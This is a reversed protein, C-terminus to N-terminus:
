QDAISAVYEQVRLNFRKLKLDYFTAGTVRGLADPDLFYMNGERSLIKDKLLRERIAIGVGGKTMRAHEIKDQFRALRGKSHSRFAMVLRRLARLEEDISQGVDGLVEAGFGAWPYANAGPWFVALEAGKRILPARNVNSRVLERAELAVVADENGGSLDSTQVVLEPCDFSLRAVSLSVPAILEVPGGSGITVDLETADIAVGSVQRGFQLEGAQSTRFMIRQPSKAGVATVLIEVDAEDTGEEAEITLRVIDGASTRARISDYLVVVHEPPIIPNSGWRDTARTLYFDILFPNPTHPGNGARSLAAGAAEVSQALLAHALIAAAFVAGSPSKGTGDLFPHQPLLGKAADDYARVHESKLGPPPSPPRTGLVIAAVRALQEEPLYLTSRVDDPITERLQMQLKGAERKLIQQAVNQLIQGEMAERVSENLAAPNSVTALVGAVAELVPAYGAFHAGDPGATKELGDVFNSIAQVYNEKHTSLAVKLWEQGVKQALRNMAALVFSKARVSDFFEIDFIPCELGLEGLIFWAEEVIGVRGFLVTPFKRGSALTRVDSLFDDFSSQTVRLRAEDLADILVAMENRQWRELLGNKVLGGTLYNGAVTQSTALDLYAAGTQASIERALTSKGVAGPAAVFWVPSALNTFGPRLKLQAEVFSPNSETEVSWGPLAAKPGAARVGAFRPKWFTEITLDM